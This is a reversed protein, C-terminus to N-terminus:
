QELAAPSITERLATQIIRQQEQKHVSPTGESPSAMEPRGIYRVQMGNALRQLRPAIYTWAGMNKPEEQVWVFEQVNDYKGIVEQIEWEPFPYLTEIRVIDLWDMEEKELLQDSLEVALRGTTFVVRKVREPRKGLGPQEIVPQFQGNTLEEVYVSASPHRLLSKPSLVILPRVTDSQLIAAQKRLLHFYNGATSVNAVIWNNEAALQLFREMRASSHEPGQGEYGHPLLMVLGSTQGWKEKGASIFQDFIVQAGNAFDGFQAEWFVLTDKSFVSYGYEFGLISAESLTSNHIAFSANASPLAHMPCFKEGTQFDSLVLNRHSFTGRESDQGTLRIPTGEKLIAAFALAEAHGWDIKRKGTFPELRRQLIKKLKHFVHFGSPWTLLEDNLQKLIARDVSTAISPLKVEETAVLEMLTPPQKDEQEMCDYAHQLDQWLNKKMLSIEEETVNRERILRHGYLATVTPHNDIKQYMKPNTARPEDMENHGLRRYGILDIVVDKHFTQRYQYALVIARMCEEPHDANVHIIPIHYGKAIDSPYLTSRDDESETTFGICNNMIVHITGGTHYATTNAYNLIEAVIGQGTFAADGHVLIPMAKTVNQIPYGPLSRNDQAARAYGEVVTGAFELHSPNNALTITIEQNNFQKTKMAGLHYKVDGTTGYLLELSPDDNGWFVHKFEAIMAEYPKDLVHTLVNLRGRHAMSLIVDKVGSQAALEVAKNLLPVFAELGEISFRKQGMFMKQIFQEFGEAKLLQKLLILKEKRLIDNRHNREVKERFWKKEERNTHEMEFAINGTYVQKLHEIAALGDQLDDRSSCLLSAPIAQLDEPTLSYNELHFRNADKPADLPYLDSAVHGERRIDESLQIANAVNTLKRILDGTSIADNSTNEDIPPGWTAFLERFSPAVEKQELYLQYQEMMYGLNISSVDKWPNVKKM